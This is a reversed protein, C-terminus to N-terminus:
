PKVKFLVVSAAIMWSMGVPIILFGYTTLGGAYQAITTLIGTFFALYSWIRLWNPAWGGRGAATLLVPGTGLVLVTAVWDARVAFWGLAEAIAAAEPSSSPGLRVVVALWAMYSVVVLPVAIWYNYRVLQARVPNQGSLEAMMTAGAGLLIVGLIWLSLNLILLNQTSLAKALYGKMDNDYLSLDIDAGAAGMVAAGALMCISGFLTAYAGLKAANQEQQKEM